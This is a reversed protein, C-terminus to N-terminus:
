RIFFACIRRAVSGGGETRYIASNVCQHQHHLMAANSDIAADQVAQLHATCSMSVTHPPCRTDSGGRGRDRCRQSPANRNIAVNYQGGHVPQADRIQSTWFLTLGTKDSRSFMRAKDWQLPTDPHRSWELAEWEPKANRLWCECDWLPRVSAIV